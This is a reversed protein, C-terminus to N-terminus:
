KGYRRLYEVGAQLIKPQDKLAGIGTNCGNCLLGRVNGTAHDHDVHVNRGEGLLDGCIGCNGEQNDLMEFYQETTVGYTKLKHRFAARARHGENNHWYRKQRANACKKCEFSLGDRSTRNKPFETRKKTHECTICFKEDGVHQREATRLRWGMNKRRRHIKPKYVRVEVTTDGLPLRHVDPRPLRLTITITVDSDFLTPQLPSTSYQTMGTVNREHSAMSRLTVMVASADQKIVDM